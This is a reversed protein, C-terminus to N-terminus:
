RDRHPWLGFRASTAAVHNLTQQIRKGAIATEYARRERAPRFGQVQEVPGLLNVLDTIYYPGMDFM